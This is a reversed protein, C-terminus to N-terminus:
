DKRKFHEQFFDRIAANSITWPIKAVSWPNQNLQDIEPLIDLNRIPDTMSCTKHGGLTMYIFVSGESITIAQDDFIDFMKAAADYSVKEAIIKPVCTRRHVPYNLRIVSM